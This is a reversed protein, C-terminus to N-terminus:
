LMVAEVVAKRIDAVSVPQRNRILIFVAEAIRDFPIREADEDIIRIARAKHPEIRIIGRDQLQHLLRHVPAKSALGLHLMLEEYSPPVGDVTLKQIAELASKQKPTM